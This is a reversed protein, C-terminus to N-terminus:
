LTGTDSKQMDSLRFGRLEPTEIGGRLMKLAQKALAVEDFPSVGGRYDLLEFIEGVGGYNWGLVAKRMSFSELVTRGLAEPRRSLQLVLHSITYFAIVDSRPATFAVRDQLDLELVYRELEAVYQERGACRVGLLCLRVDLGSNHLSALLRIAQKHGKLRTGRAPLLLIYQGNLQPFESLLQTQISSDPSEIPAFQRADIGRHIVTVPKQAADPWHQLLHRKVTQSVCIIQDAHKLVGSYRGKSHLGHVTVVWPIRAIDPDIKRLLFILWGPLRSRTHILDPRIQRLASRLTWFAPFIRWGKAGVNIAHHEAGQDLLSQLMRGGASIVVSRHGADVLASSIELCSKEVGGSELAPLIQVITLSRSATESM